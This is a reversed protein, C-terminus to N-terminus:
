NQNELEKMSVNLSLKGEFLGENRLESITQMADKMVIKDIQKIVGLDEALSIFQMPSVLGLEPHNWRVLAEAGIVKGTKANIKPQFYTLFENKEIAKRLNGEMIVRNFAIDTMKSSYFQFNNKGSEKAKYMATDANRVLINSSEGDEPYSSIGISFTTYVDQKDINVPNKMTNVINRAINTITTQDVDQLIITFEDGGLRAVTDEERICSLLRKTVMKLLIDGAEHGFTDNIEKFRDLDLFLLTVGTKERKAHKLVQELRDLFLLRNPLGTLADHHALHDLSETQLRLEKTRQYVMEELERNLEEVYYKQETIYLYYISILMLLYVLIFFLLLNNRTKTIESIDIADLNHFIIFYAMPNNHIDPLKYLTVLQNTEKNIFFKESNIFSEVSEKHILDLLEQKANLNFVYYDDLFKKTYAHTLQEKYTKDVLGIVDYRNHEMKLAISNFKSHVEIIGVFRGEDFIPVMSKFTIDFKGTSISSIIQPQKMMEAVDLRVKSLDDNKKDTWSRYFSKGDETILQIWINKLSTAKKLHLPLNKIEESGLIDVHTSLSKKIDSNYALSLAIILTAERKEDILVELENKMKKSVENYKEHKFAEVRGSLTFYAVLGWLITVVLALILLNINKQRYQTKKSHM